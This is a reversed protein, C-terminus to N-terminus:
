PSGLSTPIKGTYKLIARINVSKWFHVHNIGVWHRIWSKESSPAGVGWPPALMRNQWIKGFVAHFQFFKPGWPPHVDRVGGRLDAVAVEQQFIQTNYLKFSYIILKNLYIFLKISIPKFFTIWWAKNVVSHDISKKSGILILSKILYTTFLDTWLEYFGILISTVVSSYLIINYWVSSSSCASRSKNFLYYLAPRNSFINQLM